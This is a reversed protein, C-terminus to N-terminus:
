VSNRFLFFLGLKDNIFPDIFKDYDGKYVTPCGQSSTYNETGSHINIWKKPGGDIDTARRLLDNTILDSKTFNNNNYKTILKKM